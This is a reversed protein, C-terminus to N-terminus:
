EYLTIFKKLAQTNHNTIRVIIFRLIVVYVVSFINHSFHQYISEFLNKPMMNFRGQTPKKTLDIQNDEQRQSSQNPVKIKVHVIQYSSPMILYNSIFYFIVKAKITLPIMSKGGIVDRMM